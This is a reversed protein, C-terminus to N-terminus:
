AVGVIGAPQASAPVASHDQPRRQQQKAVPSPLGALYLAGGSASAEQGEPGPQGPPMTAMVLVHHGPRVEPSMALATCNAGQEGRPAWSFGPGSCASASELGAESFQWVDVIGDERACALLEPHAHSWCLDSVTASSTSKIVIPTQKPQHLLGNYLVLAGADGQWSVAFLDPRHAGWAIRAPGSVRRTRPAFVAVDQPQRPDMMFCDGREGVVALVGDPGFAVDSLPQGLDLAQTMAGTELDWLACIGYIDCSALSQGSPSSGPAADVSTIPTCVGHPNAEHRLLRCLEGSASWVRLYDGSTALLEKGSGSRLWRVRTCPFYHPLRVSNKIGQPASFGFTMVEVFNAADPIFSSCAVMLGTGGASSTARVDLDHVAYGLEHPGWVGHQSREEAAM